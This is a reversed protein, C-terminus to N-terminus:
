RKIITNLSAKLESKVIHWNSRLQLSAVAISSFLFLLIFMLLKITSFSQALDVKDEIPKLVSQDRPKALADNM